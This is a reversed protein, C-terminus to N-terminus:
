QYSNLVQPEFDRLEWRKNEEEIKIAEIISSTHYSAGTGVIQKGESFWVSWIVTNLISNHTTFYNINRYHKLSGWFCLLLNHHGIFLAIESTLDELVKM